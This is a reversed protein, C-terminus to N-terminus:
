GGWPSGQYVSDEWRKGEFAGSLITVFIPWIFMVFFLFLPCVVGPGEDAKVKVGFSRVPLGPEFSATSRLVYSGPEVEDTEKEQNRSGESWAGDSDSGSYFSPEAYLSVVEDTAENVLDLQVGLWGNNLSPAVVEVALPMKKPVKFPDSFTMAEPSGPKVDMPLVVTTDLLTGSTTGISFAITVAILAAAWICAWKWSSSVRAAWPNVQASASGMAAPLPVKLGFAKMVEERKLMVGATFTAENETLDLNISKPPAVFEAAFAIEGQSVEWYCEGVVYETTAVVSQYQKYREGAYSASRGTIVVDGAAIPQLWTWHGNSQMLWRFGQERNWLLYEEWPYRTGEVECSRVLFALCVWSADHLTGVSGLPIRPEYPPKELMQLFQLSGSSVDLLAGCFPCAVRKARDPAKLDLPGNCNTCRAQRLSERKPSPQLSSADIGLSALPVSEGFFVEPTEGGYDISAFVWGPGTCDAYDHQQEFSPLQGQASVTSAHGVEEVVFRKDRLTIPLAPRLRDLAPVELEGGPFMINWQGESESLWAQRGDDTELCWEDWAGTGHTKQIRGVITFGIQQYRGSLGLALPSETDALDAVRGLSQLNADGRLVVTQCHECVKM